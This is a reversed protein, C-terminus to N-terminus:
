YEEGRAAAREALFSALSWAHLADMLRVKLAAEHTALARADAYRTLPQNFIEDATLKNAIWTFVDLGCPPEFAICVHLSRRPGNEFRCWYGNPIFLVDGASLEEDLLPAAHQLAKCSMDQLPHTTHPAFVQCRTGGAIQLVCIDHKRYHQPFAGTQESTVFAEATVREATQGAIQRCLKWLRPAYKELRPFILSAGRDMLSSLAASDVRGGKIYFSAPVSMSKNRVNLEGIPYLGSEILHNLAEWDLLTEFRHSRSTPMYAATQERLHMLFEAETLPAVLQRLTSIMNSENNRPRPSIAM